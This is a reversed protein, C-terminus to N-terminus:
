RELLRRRIRGELHSLNMVLPRSDAFTVGALSYAGNEKAVRSLCFGRRRMMLGYSLAGSWSGPAASDLARALEDRRGAFAACGLEDYASPGMVVVPRGAYAAEVGTTSGYTVVIDAQRMLTYSDIPSHHDIHLDPRAADVAALWEEVDLRPKMRKHPHSRVVLSWGPRSRVEEALQLLAEPQDGIFRSWDLELEAIEDGSSSFYVVLTQGQPRDIGTGSAQSEVFLANDPATHAIRDQFWSEGVEHAVDDPWEEFMKLMRRQLDSWDHTVNDTFDFDTDIGGGDYYMVKIGAAEGAASAARDHLFRGNCIVLATLGREAILATTQDYAWAYSRAAAQLLRRPWFYADTIPTETDPKVQLMARGMPSGKYTLSKIQSRNMDREIRAEPPTPCRRLPPRAVSAAPVGARLLARQVNRDRSPSALVTSFVSSTSWGTDRMPTDNAWFALTLASGMEHLTLATEALAALAFPWQTFSVFGVHRRQDASMSAAIFDELSAHESQVSM